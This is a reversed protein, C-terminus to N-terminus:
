SSAKKWKIGCGFAKTDTVEVEEGALVADIAQMLDHSKVQETDRNDNVRGRYRLVQTDDVLYVHPTVLADFSKAVGQTADYLYPFPYKKQDALEIMAGFSDGPKLEPDNSNILVFQVGKSEYHNAMDILIPEYAKSYPCTNCTFVVVTAKSEATYDKLSHIKGDTGAMQFAPVANGIELKDASAALPLALVALLLTLPFRRM